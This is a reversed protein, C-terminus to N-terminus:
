RDGGVEELHVTLDKAAFRELAATAERLPPAIMQTLVRGIVACSLVTIVMLVCTLILLSQALQTSHAGVQDAMKNNLAVDADVADSATNFSKKMEPGLQMVKADEIKGAAVLKVYQDSLQLFIAANKRITDFLDQEGPYSVLPAYKGMDENYIAIYKQRKELYRQNCESSDCTM